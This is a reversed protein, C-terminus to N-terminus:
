ESTRKRRIIEMLKMPIKLLILPLTTWVGNARCARVIECNLVWSHRLGRTSIGGVRMKIVPRAVHIYSAAGRYLLRVLMEFDAAIRYDLSFLGYRMYWERKILFTTHAPMWGFRFRCPKWRSSDYYRLIRGTDLQDVYVLDAFVSDVNATDMALVLDRIVHTDTYFDDSNLMGVVDGTAMNIGKNMADYIGRDPESVFLSIKEKYQQVIEVTGDTSGGDIIIYEIGPYDQSLVSDIADRITKSSNFCVTIISVKQSQILQENM